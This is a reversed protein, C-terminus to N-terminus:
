ANALTSHMVWVSFSFLPFVFMSFFIGISIVLVTSPLSMKTLLLLQGLYHLKIAPVSLPLPFHFFTLQIQTRVGYFLNCISRNAFTMNYFKAVNEKIHLVL